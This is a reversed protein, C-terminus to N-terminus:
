KLAELVAAHADLIGSGCLTATEACRTGTPFPRASVQLKALVESPTLGPDVSLMLAVVGAVHPTAMSTGNYSAYGDGQPTRTGLDVTSLVGGGPQQVDGGPASIEIGPGFNSYRALEGNRDTAAVAILGMCSAPTANAVDASENGAAAVITAGAAIVEDVVAQMAVDFPGVGGLSLNLVRAPTANSPVGPVPLGVAWRMADIIDSMSGSGGVGLVRIPMLTTDPAIGAVGLGNDTAAAITGSVHSGHWSSSRRFLFDGPDTPDADRGDGDRAFLRMSVFDHGGAWQGALDEHDGRIGTDLVAVRIAPDGTTVDWAEPLKIGGVPDFFHWQEGYRPDNPTPVSAEGALSTSAIMSRMVRDPAAYVVGPLRSLRAALDTARDPRMGVPLTLIRADGSMLRGRGLRLGAVRQLRSLQDDSIGLEEPTGDYRDLRLIIASIADERAAWPEISVREGAVAQGLGLFLISGWLLISLAMKLIIPSM